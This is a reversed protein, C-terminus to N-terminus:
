DALQCQHVSAEVVIRASGCKCHSGLFLFSSPAGPMAVLFLSAVLLLRTQHERRADHQMGRDWAGLGLTTLRQWGQTMLNTSRYPPCGRDHGFLPCLGEFGLLELPIGDEKPSKDPDM